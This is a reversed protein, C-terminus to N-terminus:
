DLEPIAPQTWAREKEGESTPNAKVKSSTVRARVYLEEGTYHYVAENGTTRQLVRGIDDSYRYTLLEGSESNLVEVPSPNHDRDTGIFEIVYEVGDEVEVSVAYREGEVSLESLTVGSSAYFRGQDMSELLADASLDASEVMVWGRGTNARNIAQEQYNHADDTGIGFMMPRGDQLRITNVVDWMKEMGMRLSDGYNNVAPHGNYVEFFREGDIMALQDARMAWGFNPHNIHPMVRQQLREGQELIANVNAQMVEVLSNGSRPEIYEAVNSANIHIPKREFSSTVEEARIMLFSGPANFRSSYEEYTKLRVQVTDDAESFEVWGDPSSALYDQFVDYRAHSAPITLWREGEAITNHDSIALFNYGNEVYWTTITEPFDDGDSWFSHTHLNGKYWSTNSEPACSSLAPLLVLVILGNLLQRTFM